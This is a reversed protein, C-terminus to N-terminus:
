ALALPLVAQAGQGGPLEAGPLPESAHVRHGGPLALPSSPSLLLAQLAQSAPLYALPLPAVAQVSHGSPATHSPAAGAGM